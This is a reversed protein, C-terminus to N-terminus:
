FLNANIPYTGRIQVPYDTSEGTMDIDAVNDLICNVLYYTPMTVADTTIVVDGINSDFLRQSEWLAAIPQSKILYILVTAVQYLRGSPVAGTQAPLYDSTAGEFTLRAMKNGFFGRTANLAPNSVVQVAVLARNLTGLPVQPNGPM